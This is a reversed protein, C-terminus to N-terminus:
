FLSSHIAPAPKCILCKLPVICGVVINNASGVDPQWLLVPHLHYLASTAPPLGGWLGHVLHGVLGLAAAWGQPGPGLYVALAM